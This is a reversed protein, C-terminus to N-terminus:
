RNVNKNGRRDEDCLLELHHGMEGPDVVGKVDFARIGLLLRDDEMIAVAGSCFIRHSAQYKLKEYEVLEGPTLPVIRAPVKEQIIEWGIKRGGQGDGSKTRRLISVRKNLLPKSIAM